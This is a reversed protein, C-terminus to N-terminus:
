SADRLRRKIKWSDYAQSMIRKAVKWIGFRRVLLAIESEIFVEPCSTDDGACRGLRYLCRDIALHNDLSRELNLHRDHHSLQRM